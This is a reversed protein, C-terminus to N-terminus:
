FIAALGSCIFVRNSNVAQLFWRDAVVYQKAVITRFSRELGDLTSPKRKM